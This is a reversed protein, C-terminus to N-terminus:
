KPGFGYRALISAGAPAAVFELFARGSPSPTVAAGVVEPTPAGEWRARDLVRVDEVGHLDTSYVAAAAVEGRRAYALVAAVDGAYVVRDQLAAWSGLQMLADKAYAGAPVAAPEGIALRETVPLETLTQWTLAPSDQSGILVLENSAVKCRTAGDALGMAVLDDVPSAAAFLVVDIPAGGEVQRMLTGSGGYTVTVPQGFAEILSPMASRMSAAAAVTPPANPTAPGQEAGRGCGGLLIVLVGASLWRLSTPM